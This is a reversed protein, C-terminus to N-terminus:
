FHIFRTTLWCFLAVVNIMNDGACYQCRGITDMTLLFELSHRKEFHENFVLVIMVCLNCLSIDKQVILFLYLASESFTVCFSCLVGDSSFTVAPNLASATHTETHTLTHISSNHQVAPSRCCPLLVDSLYPFIFSVFPFSSFLFSFPLGPLIM